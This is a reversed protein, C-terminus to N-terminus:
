QLAWLFGFCRLLFMRSKAFNQRKEAAKPRGPKSICTIIQISIYYIEKVTYVSVQSTLKNYNYSKLLGERDQSVLRLPMSPSFVQLENGQWM